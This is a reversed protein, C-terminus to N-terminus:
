GYYDEAHEPEVGVFESELSNEKIISASEEVMCIAGKAVDREENEESGSEDGENNELMEGETGLSGFIRVIPVEGVGAEESNEVDDLEDPSEM